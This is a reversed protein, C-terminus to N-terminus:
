TGARSRCRGCAADARTRPPVAAPASCLRPGVFPAIERLARLREIGGVAVGAASPRTSLRAHSGSPVVWSVGRTSGSPLQQLFQRLAANALEFVPELACTAVAAEAFGRVWREPLPVRKEIVRGDLTDVTVEDRGVALHLPDRAGIRALASRLAPNVDINTTGHVHCQRRARLSGTSGRQVRRLVSLVVRLAARRGLRHRRPGAGRDGGCGHQTADLLPRRRRERRPADGTGRAAARRSLGRRAVPESRMRRVDRARHRRRRRRAAGGDAPPLPVRARRHADRDHRAGVRPPASRDQRDQEHGHSRRNGITGAEDSVAGPRSRSHRSSSSFPSCIRLSAPQAVAVAHEVCQLVARRHDPSAAAFMPSPRAGGLRRSSGLARSAGSRRDSTAPSSVVTASPRSASISLWPAFPRANITSPSRLSSSRTARCRLMPTSSASSTPPTVTPSMASATPRASRPPGSVHGRAPFGRSSRVWGSSARRTRRSAGGVDAAGADGDAAFETSHDRRPRRCPPRPVTSGSSATWSSANWGPERSADRECHQAWGELWRAVPANGTLRSRAEQLRKVDPALRLLATTLEVPHPAATAAALREVFVVPDIVGHRHTPAAIPTFPPGDAGPRRRGRHAPVAARRTRADGGPEDPATAELQEPTTWAIVLRAILRQSPRDSRCLKTARRGLTLAQRQASAGHGNAALGSVLLEIEDAGGPTELSAAIRELLDALDVIPSLTRDEGPALGPDFAFM